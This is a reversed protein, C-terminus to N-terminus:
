YRVVEFELDIEVNEQVTTLGGGRGSFKFDLIPNLCRVRFNTGGWDTLSIDNGISAVLFDELEQAEKLTMQKFHWTFREENPTVCYTYITGDMAKNVKVKSMLTDADNLEPKRLLTMSLTPADYPSDLLINSM